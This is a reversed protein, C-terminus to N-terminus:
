AGAVLDFHFIDDLPRFGLRAYLANSTGNAVDTVLFVERGAALLEGAVGAVLASAYGRARHEQLTYVPAIRAADDGALGFGAYAVRGENEWIRYGGAALRQAVDREIAARSAPVRAEVSFASQADLLWGLDGDGAVRALGPPMAPLVLGALVHNRMHLRQRDRRGTLTRWSAAFAKCAPLAGAVGALEPFEAALDVAFATAAPPDSDFLALPGEGRQVAAGTSAGDEYTALYARDVAGRQRVASAWGRMAAANAPGRVLMPAAAALFADLDTHRVVNM